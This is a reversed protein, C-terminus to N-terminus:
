AEFKTLILVGLASLHGAYAWKEKLLTSNQVQTIQGM